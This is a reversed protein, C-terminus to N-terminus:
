HYFRYTILCLILNKIVNRIISVFCIHHQQMKFMITYMTQYNDFTYLLILRNIFFTNNMEETNWGYYYYKIGVLIIEQTNWFFSLTYYRTFDLM